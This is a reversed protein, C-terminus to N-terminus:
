VSKRRRAMFSVLGLGALMMAYTEPEPVANVNVNDLLMGIHDRRNNFNVDAFSLLFDGTHGPTFTFSYHTWGAFEPLSYTHLATGLLVGVHETASNRQNGALDFSVTYQTGKTLSLSHSLVGATNTSGDLDIYNGGNPLLDYFGPGIVDVSGGVVSWGSPTAPTGVLDSNFNDSFVSAAQAGASMALLASAILLKKM